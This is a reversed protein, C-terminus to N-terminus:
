FSFSNKFSFFFIFRLDVSEKQALPRDQPGLHQPQQHPSVAGSGGHPTHSHSSSNSGAAGQGQEGHSDTDNENDSSQLPIFEFLVLSNFFPSKSILKAEKQIDECQIFKKSSLSKIGVRSDPGYYIIFSEADNLEDTNAKLENSNKISVFKGNVPSKISILSKISFLESDKRPADVAEFTELDAIESSSAFLNNNDPALTVYKGNQLYKL